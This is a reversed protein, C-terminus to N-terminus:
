VKQYQPIIPNAEQGKYRAVLQTYLDCSTADIDRTGRPLSNWAKHIKTGCIFKNKCQSSDCIELSRTKLSPWDNEKKRDAGCIVCFRYYLKCNDGLTVAPNGDIFFGSVQRPKPYNEENGNFHKGGFRYITTPWVFQM